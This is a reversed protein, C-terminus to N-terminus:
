EKAKVKAEKKMSKRVQDIQRSNAEFIEDIQKQYSKLIQCSIQFQKTVERDTM